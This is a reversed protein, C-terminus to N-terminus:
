HFNKTIKNLEPLETSHRSIGEDVYFKITKWSQAVCLAKLRKRQDSISYGEINQEETSVSICLGVRKQIM